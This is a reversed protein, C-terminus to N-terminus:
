PPTLTFGDAMNALELFVKFDISNALFSTGGDARLSQAGNPHASTVPNNMTYGTSFGLSATTATLTNVPYEVYTM